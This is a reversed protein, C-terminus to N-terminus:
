SHFLSIHLDPLLEPSSELGFCDPAHDPHPNGSRAHSQEETSTAFSCMGDHPPKEVDKKKKKNVRGRKKKEDVSFTLLENAIGWM